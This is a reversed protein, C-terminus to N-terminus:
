KLREMAQDSGDEEMDSQALEPAQLSDRYSCRWEPRPVENCGLLIVWGSALAMLIAQIIDMVSITSYRCIIILMRNLMYSIILLFAWQGPSGVM